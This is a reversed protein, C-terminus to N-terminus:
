RQGELYHQRAAIAPDEKQEEKRVHEVLVKMWVSNVKDEWVKPEKARQSDGRNALFDLVPQGTMKEASNIRYYANFAFRRGHNSLQSYVPLLTDSAQADLIAQMNHRTWLEFIGKESSKPNADACAILCENKCM